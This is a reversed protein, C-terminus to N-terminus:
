FFLSEQLPAHSMRTLMWIKAINRAYIGRITGLGGSNLVTEYNYTVSTGPDPRLCWKCFM